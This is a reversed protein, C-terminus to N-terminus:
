KKGKKKITSGQVRYWKAMNKYLSVELKRNGFTANMMCHLIHHIHKLEKIRGPQQKTFIDYNVALNSCYTSLINLFVEGNSSDNTNEELAFSKINGGKVWFNLFVIYARLMWRFKKSKLEVAIFIHPYKPIFEFLYFLRNSIGSLHKALKRVLMGAKIMEIISLNYEYRIVIHNWVKSM